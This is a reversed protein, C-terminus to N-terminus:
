GWKVASVRQTSAFGGHNGDIGQDVAPQRSLQLFCRQLALEVLGVGAKRDALGMWAANADSRTLQTYMHTHTTHTTDQRSKGEM